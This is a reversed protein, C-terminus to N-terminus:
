QCIPFSEARHRGGCSAKNPLLFDVMILHRNASVALIAGVAIALLCKIM